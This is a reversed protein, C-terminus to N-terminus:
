GPLEISPLATHRGDILTLRLNAEPLVQDFYFRATDLKARYFAENVRAAALLAIRAWWVGLLCLGALRLYDDAIRHAATPEDAAEDIIARTVARWRAVVATLAEGLERCPSDRCSRAAEDALRFLAEV